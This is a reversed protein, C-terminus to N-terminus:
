CHDTIGKFDEVDIPENELEIPDVIIPVQNGENMPEYVHKKHM